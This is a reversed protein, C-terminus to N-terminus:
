ENDLNNFYYEKQEQEDIEKLMSLDYCDRIDELHDDPIEVGISRAIQERFDRSINTDEIINAIVKPIEKTKKM